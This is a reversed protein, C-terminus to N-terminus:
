ILGSPTIACSEGRWVCLYYQTLRPQSCHRDTGCGSCGTQILARIRKRNDSHWRHSKPTFRCMLYPLNPRYRLSSSSALPQMVSCSAFPVVCDHRPPSPIALVRSRVLPTTTLCYTLLSILLIFVIFDATSSPPIFSTHAGSAKQYVNLAHRYLM